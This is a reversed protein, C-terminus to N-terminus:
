DQEQVFLACYKMYGNNQQGKKLHIEGKQEDLSSRSSAWNHTLERRQYRDKPM